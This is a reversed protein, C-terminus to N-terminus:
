QSYRTCTCGRHLLPPLESVKLPTSGMAAQTLKDIEALHRELYAPMHMVRLVALLTDLVTPMGIAPCALFLAAPLWAFAFCLNREKVLAEYCSVVLAELLCNQVCEPCALVGVHVCLCAPLPICVCMCVCEDMCTHCNKLRCIMAKRPTVGEKTYVCVCVCVYVLMDNMYACHNRDAPRNAPLSHM